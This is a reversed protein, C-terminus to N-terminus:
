FKLHEGFGAENKTNTKTNTLDLIGEAARLMEEAPILNLCSIPCRDFTRDWHDGYFYCPYCALPPTLVQHREGLPGSHLHNRPGFLVVAPTAMIEAIRLPGTDGSIFLACVELLAALQQLSFEVLIFAGSSGVQRVLEEIYPLEAPVGTVILKCGYREILRKGVLSLKERPIRKNAKESGPHIAVLLDEGPRIGRERLLRETARRDAESLYIEMRHSQPEIGLVRVTDLMYEIIPRGPQIPVEVNHFCQFGESRLFGVREVTRLSIRYSAGTLYTLLANTFPKSKSLNFVLDFKRRRLNWALRLFEGYDWLTDREKVAEGWVLHEDVYPNGALVQRGYSRTLATLQTGPFRRKLERLVPTCFFVDGLNDRQIVLIRGADAPPFGEPMRPAPLLKLLGWLVSIGLRLLFKLIADFSATVKGWM